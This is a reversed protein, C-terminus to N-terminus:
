AGGGAHEGLAVPLTALGPTFNSPVWTASGDLTLDPYRAAIMEFLVTLELRALHVGLCYHPGGAGYGVHPNPDRGIDFTHPDAFVEPDRNAASFWMVVPDGARITRGGLETDRTATRRFYAVPTSWRVIEEVAPALPAGAVLAAWTQPRELLALAGVGAAVRTTETGAAYLVLFFIAFEEPTLKRGEVEADLLRAVLDDGPRARGHAALELAYGILAGGAAGVDPQGEAADGSASMQSTWSGLQDRDEPPIGLVSGIVRPPLKAAVDAVFDIRGREARAEADDLLEKVIERVEGELRAIARPTFGRNVILRMQTHRPPDAALTLVDEGLGLFGGQEGILTGQATTFTEDDRNVASVDAHRVVAWFDTDSATDHHWSVPDAARLADFMVHEAGAVFRGPDVLDIDPVSCREPRMQTMDSM